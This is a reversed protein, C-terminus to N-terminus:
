GLIEKFSDIVYELEEKTLFQHIGIYFGKKGLAEANPIKGEYIEKLDSFSPQQTPICGFLTRTEVGKKELGRMIDGRSGDKVILPYALYSVDESFKPLQLVKRHKKLGENLYLLNERRQNNIEDIQNIRYNALATSFETTKFNFGLIDHTFRPDFDKKGGNKENKLIEPCKGEMRECIDCSCLRGNSKIKRVLNRIELSNTNLAGLEGAQLNHAIYFSFNSLDGISGLTKGKYKSGHAQASDEFVFLNYDQAIKNIEDMQCPYGMLHVPLIALFEEPNQEQM